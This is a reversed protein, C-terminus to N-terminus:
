FSGEFYFLAGAGAAAVGGVGYLMNATRAKSKADKALQTATGGDHVSGRLDDQAKKAAVGYYV